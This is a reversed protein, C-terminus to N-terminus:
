RSLCRSKALVDGGALAALHQGDRTVAAERSIVSLEQGRSGERRLVAGAPVEMDDSLRAVEVLQRGSLGEFLPSRKLAAVKLDQRVRAM